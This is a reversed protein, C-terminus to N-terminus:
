DPKGLANACSAPKTAVADKSDLSLPKGLKRSLIRRMTGITSRLKESFSLSLWTEFLSCGYFKPTPLRLLRMAILRGWTAGKKKTLNIQSRDLKWSEARELKLYGENIAGAIIERGRRTRVIVLSSGLNDDGPETYWPDGCSIDALEGSGDPWLHVSWPRFAQLFAWSERYSQRAFPATDDKKTVAFHGPWGLGRYRIDAVEGEPVGMKGVLSITGQTSPSEACFFSLAVGVRRDLAEDHSQAKRLAAIESPKGIVACPSQGGKVLNLGNCVSAPSYRSGSSSLLEERTRSLRTRNRVPDEPDQGIHLVGSMGERELCYAAIATLAGGSAGQHRMTSDVAFGEWIELVPGWRRRLQRSFPIDAGADPFSVGLGPCVDLCASCGDCAGETVKPRIGEETFDFLEVRGEPCTPECAGCGLCLRWSAVDAVNTIQPM